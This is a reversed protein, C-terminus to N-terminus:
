RATLVVADSSGSDDTVTVRIEGPGLPRIAALARGDFTSHRPDVYSETTAPDGSGFGQLLGPGDVTLTLRREGDGPIGEEDVVEFLIFALDDGGADLQTRDATARVRQAPSASRLEHRGTEKGDAYSIAVLTGPHYETEFSTRYRQAAGVGQRGLSRGNLLLEVEEADSYVEVVIPAGEHGSWSWTSVSDTWAWPGLQVTRGHFEPRQVALYPDSRLGFVIERYYSVPRRTGILDLDGSWASIWPYGGGFSEADIAEDRYQARGIGVEGLYDWGTWTFDGLVHPHERVLAWLRDIRTPFTETGIILRNPFLERDSAYRSELYNMGAVDLVGFSEATKHTVAESSGIMNMLDGVDTMVTNIGSNEDVTESGRQQMMEIVDPMVALMGNIANTVYRTPDLARVHEALRRGWVGGMATGTEPIENGISYFIVSPHNRDKAVMSELDREWWEPFDLQYGFDTKGTTWSDFAEDMVLMGHRDCADLMARSIPNHASRIANFGAAKLLEVRREEARAITAAGLVGNDHHICAGRLKVSEGNIRLGHRPDLQLKRIGFSTDRRDLEVVDSPANEQTIRTQATYLTPSDVGWLQPDDVYLRHRTVATEGALLTVPAAGSAVSRGSADLIRSAAAVTRRRSSRNAIAIEVDVVAHDSEIDPTTVGIGDVTIHVPELVHLWVDRYIGAGSYWRADQHTRAEVRVENAGARVLHSVDLDFRSYGSPRQGAYDGNVHVVADRYVGEFELLVTKDLADDGLEFTNTYEYAGGPFFAGWSGLHLDPERDRSIMADHPVEVPEYTAADRGLEAFPNVKSRFKWGRNFSRRSM